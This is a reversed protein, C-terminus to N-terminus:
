PRSEVRNRYLKRLDRAVSNSDSMWKAAADLIGDWTAGDEAFLAEAFRAGDNIQSKLWSEMPLMSSGGRPSYGKIARELTFKCCFGAVFLSGWPGLLCTIVWDRLRDEPPEQGLAAKYLEGMWFYASSLVFHNLLVARALGGWRGASRPNAAVERIARMEYQLYQQQTSLFQYMVRGLRNRRQVSTQNEMRGSQQTREVISWTAAMADTESMGQALFDRYIGQGVVLAPVADG